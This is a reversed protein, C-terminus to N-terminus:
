SFFSIVKQAVPPPKMIDKIGGGLADSAALAQEDAALKADTIKTTVDGINNMQDQSIGAETFITDTDILGSDNLKMDSMLNNVYDVKGSVDGGCTSDLCDLIGDLSSLIDPIKINKLIDNIANVLFSAPAELLDSITDLADNVGRNIANAAESVFAGVAAAPSTKGSLINDEIIGCSQLIDEMESTDPITPTNEDVGSQIANTADSLDQASSAPEGILKGLEKNLLKTPANVAEKAQEMVRIKDDLQRELDKCTNGLLGDSPSPIDPIQPIAM